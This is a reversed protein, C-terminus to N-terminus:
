MLKLTAKIAMPVTKTTQLQNNGYYFSGTLTKKYIAYLTVDSSGTYLSLATTADKLTIGANNAMARILENKNM